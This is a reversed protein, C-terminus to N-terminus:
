RVGYIKEILSFSDCQMFVTTLKKKLTSAFVYLCPCKHMDKYIHIVGNCDDHIIRGMGM